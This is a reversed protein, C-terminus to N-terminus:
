TALLQQLLQLIPLQLRNTVVVQSHSLSLPSGLVWQRLSRVLQPSFEPLKIQMDIDFKWTDVTRKRWNRRIPPWKRRRQKRTRYPADKPYQGLNINPKAKTDFKAIDSKRIKVDPIGPEKFVTTSPSTLVVTSGPVLTDCLGRLDRNSRKTAKRALKLELPRRDLFPNTSSRTSYSVRGLNTWTAITDAVTM